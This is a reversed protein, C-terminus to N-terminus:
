FRQSNREENLKTLRRIDEECLKWEESVKVEFWLEIIGLSEVSQNEGLADRLVKLGVIRLNLKSGSRSFTEVKCGSRLVKGTAQFKQLSNCNFISDAM